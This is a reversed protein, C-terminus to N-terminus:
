LVLHNGSEIQRFGLVILNVKDVGVSVPNDVLEYVDPKVELSHLVSTPPRSVISRKPVVNGPV